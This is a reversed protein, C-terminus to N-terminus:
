IKWGGGGWFDFWHCRCLPCNSGLFYTPPADSGGLFILSFGKHIIAGWVLLCNFIDISVYWSLNWIGINTFEKRTAWCSQSWLNLMQTARPSSTTDLPMSALDLAAYQCGVFCILDWCGTEPMIIWILHPVLCMSSIINQRFNLHM